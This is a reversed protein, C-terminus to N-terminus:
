SKPKRGLLRAFNVDWGWRYVKPVFLRPEARNWWREKIRARTPRRVDYPMGLLKGTKPVKTTSSVAVGRTEQAFFPLAPRARACGHKQAPRVASLGFQGKTM